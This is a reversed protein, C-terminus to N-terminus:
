TKEVTVGTESVVITDKRQVKNELLLGAIANEVKDQIVRRLPRVGFAPDYGAEALNALAEDTVRLGIGRESLKKAVGLVMLRAVSVIQAQTLPQFLVIADFRNLFEPRFQDKLEQHILANKIHDMSTGRAIEDQVYRTGANSTAILIINTFDIVRGVSDTLRGDDMVQLFINLVNADAKELEDLLLLSFPKQRVQETLMGTGQEGPRGILRYISNTDQYESMDLRIMQAEDGFYVDAITKALETKGVGTPGLFLCNALPRKGSQLEARARRLANAVVTVAEEQGIVREHMASELRMLKESENESVATVPIKTKEAVIASVDEATVFQNKGRRNRVYLAAESAIQIAKKPLYDDHLYRNSLEVARDLAEYSFWVDHQYEFQNSKAELVQIATNVDMEDVVVKQFLAGLAQNAIVKNFSETTTTAICLLYGKSLENALVGAVDMSQGTGMSIGIMKEINPIVLVINGARAIDYLAELLRDEAEAASAGSLLRAVDLEMLRKDALEPPVLEAVMLEAIGNVITRRGVGPNGVLLVGHAGSQLVRFISELEAGRGVMPELHGYWSAKTLDSSVSNLFPTALATMSRNTDGKGRGRSGSVRAARARQMRSRVREWQLANAFKEQSVEFDDYITQISEDVSIIVAALDAIDVVPEHSEWAIEYAGFLLQWTERPIQPETDKPAAGVLHPQLAQLFDKPRILLRMSLTEMRHNELIAAFLHSSTVFASHNQEAILFAREIAHLLDASFATTINQKAAGSLRRAESWSTATPGVSSDSQLYTHPIVETQVSTHRIMRAVLLMLFILWVGGILPLFKTQNQFFLLGAGAIGFVLITGFIMVFLRHVSESSQRYAIETGNVLREWFLFRGHSQMGVAAGGCTRCAGGQVAGAGQCSECVIIPLSHVDM